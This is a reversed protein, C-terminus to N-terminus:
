SLVEQLDQLATVVHAHRLAAIGRTAMVAAEVTTFYPINRMLAERRLASDDGKVTHVLMQVRGDIIDNKVDGQSDRVVEFGLARLQGEIEDAFAREDQGVDLIVRGAQPLHTGAAIQSKAFALNATRAIGMVEGTSKMEPGLWVDAGAFRQFPFVAEKVAYYGHARAKPVWGQARLEGLTKGAMCLAAIRALPVGTAKAVFPVTRSARPNAELVFIEDGKVALQVNMLGVVNLAEALKKAQAELKAIVPASLAHPPLICAADGSHVGALEVHELVGGIVMEGSADRVLDVDVEVADDLFRDVLVPRENSARVADRMYLALEADDRVIRMARGGLVYSPRVLVPYGIDNAITKAEEPSRAMGNKPQALGCASVIASFAERDEARDIDDPSTGIVKVGAAALAQALKLPTQGGLQVIVGDPKEHAVIALVHELTLPEFYLRSSVDPDTSVTEPNCNVMLTEFGAERLALSAHVCCYDFEVGQGIRNPGSGLIMIKKNSSPASENEEAYTSYFYPTFAEFEGACTDVRKYVSSVGLRLRRSREEEETTERLAAIRADSVGLRKARRLATTEDGDGIQREALVVRELKGLFWPDIATLSAIESVSMKGRLGAMVAFVREPTPKKMAGFLDLFGDPEKEEMSSLAKMFAEEFCGGIAMVEGVSKMQTGLTKPAHPFQAFSFRPVKVVVYDIAPEFCASTHKTIDNKLEDLTYGLALRTAIKAIPYGTAKSALASSRSVRPNMEIV